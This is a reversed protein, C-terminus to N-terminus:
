PCMFGGQVQEGCGKYPHTLLAFFRLLLPRIEDFEVTEDYYLDQERFKIWYAADCLGHAKFVCPEGEWINRQRHYRDGPAIVGCCIDCTHPKLAVPWTDGLVLTM